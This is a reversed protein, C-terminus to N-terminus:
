YFYAASVFDSFFIVRVGDTLAPTNPTSETEHMRWVSVSHHRSRERITRHCDCDVHTERYDKIYTKYAKAAMSINNVSICELRSALDYGNPDDNARAKSKPFIFCEDFMVMGCQFVTSVHM